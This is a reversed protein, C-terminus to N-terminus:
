ALRLPAPQERPREYPSAQSHFSPLHGAELVRVADGSWKRIEEAATGGM